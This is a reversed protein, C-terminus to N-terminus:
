VRRGRAGGTTAVDSANSCLALPPRSGTDGLQCVAPSVVPRQQPARPTCTGTRETPAAFPYLERRPAAGCRALAPEPKAPGKIKARPPAAWLGLPFAGRRRRAGGEGH